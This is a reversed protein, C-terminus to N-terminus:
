SNGDLVSLPRVLTHRLVKHIDICPRFKVVGKHAVSPNQVPAISCNISTIGKNQVRQQRQTVPRKMQADLTAGVTFIAPPTTALGLTRMSRIAM